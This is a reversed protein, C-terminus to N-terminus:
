PEGAWAPISRSVAGVAISLRLNGRGRPSLGTQCGEGVSWFFRNGRGRPSLGPTHVLVPVWVLTGGGVRPYVGPAVHVRSGGPPEGAWAPISRCRPSDPLDVRPNGRGRPSLGLCALLDCLIEETGGGVRPYVPRAVKASQGFSATGGGVRPYVTSPTRWTRSMAPEGAWAPISRLVYSGCVPSSLNGRGRPSLGQGTQPDWTKRNTGGGM